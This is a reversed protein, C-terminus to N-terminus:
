RLMVFIILLAVAISIWYCIKEFKSSEAYRQDRTKTFAEKLQQKYPKKM